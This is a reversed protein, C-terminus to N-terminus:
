MESFESDKQYSVYLWLLALSLNLIWLMSILAAECVTEQLALISGPRQRALFASQRQVAGEARENGRNKFYLQLAEMHNFTITDNLSKLSIIIKKKINEKELLTFVLGLSM